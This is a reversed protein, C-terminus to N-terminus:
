PEHYAPKTKPVYLRLFDDENSKIYNNINNFITKALLLYGITNFHVTDDRYKSDNLLSSNYINLYPLNNNNAITRIRNNIESAQSLSSPPLSCIFITINPNETKLKDIINQYNQKDEDSTLYNNTGLCIIACDFSSFDTNRYLNLWTTPTSGSYGFNEVTCNTLKALYEPYGYDRNINGTGYHLQAGRTISDGICCIKFFLNSYNVYNENINSELYNWEEWTNNIFKYRYALFKKSSRSFAFQITISNIIDTITFVYGSTFNSPINQVNYNSTNGIYLVFSNDPLNNLNNYPETQIITTNAYLFSFTNKFFGNIFDYFDIDKKNGNFKISKAKLPVTIEQTENTMQIGSIFKGNVDYFALGKLDQVTTTSKYLIKMGGLINIEYLPYNVTDNNAIVGTEYNVFKGSESILNFSSLINIVKNLLFSIQKRVSNGATNYTTGDEGIRIDLLEADGSTSGEPLNTINDIRAKEVNIQNQLDNKDGDLRKNLTEFKGRAESVEANVNGNKSADEYTQEIAQAISERVDKGLRAKRINEILNAIIAM